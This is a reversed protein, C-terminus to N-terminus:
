PALLAERWGAAGAEFLRRSHLRDESEQWFEIRDPRLRVAGWDDPCSVSGEGLEARLAELKGRLQDL